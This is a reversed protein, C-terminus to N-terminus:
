LLEMGLNFGKSGAGGGTNSVAILPTVTSAVDAEANPSAQTPDWPISWNGVVLREADRIRTGYNIGARVRLIDPLAARIHKPAVPAWLIMPIEIEGGTWPDATMSTQVDATGTLYVLSYYTLGTSLRGIIREQASPSALIYTAAQQGAGSNTNQMVVYPNDDGEAPLTIKQVSCLGGSGSTLATANYRNVMGFGEHDERAWMIIRSDATGSPWMDCKTVSSIERGVAPSSSTDKPRVGAAIAGGDTRWAGGTEFKNLSFSCFFAALGGGGCMELCVQHGNDNELVMWVLLLGNLVTADTGGVWRNVGDPTASFGSRNSSGRCTWGMSILFNALDNGMKFQRADASALAIYTKQLVTYDAM